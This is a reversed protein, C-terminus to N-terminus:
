GKDHPHRYRQQRCTIDGIHQMSDHLRDGSHCMFGIHVQALIEISFGHRTGGEKPQRAPRMIGGLNNNRRIDADYSSFLM